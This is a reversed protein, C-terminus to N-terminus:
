SEVGACMRCLIAAFRGAGFGNDINVVVVGSACSNLMGLLAALGDFAAGYGVSTPVAIVPVDVLGGVVSPLAGEMGAVVIIVGARMLTESYALLRHLGSVGVDYVRKVACGALEATLAAEEAVPQDSTGATVVAVPRRTLDPEPLEGLRIIRALEHYEADPIEACVYAAMEPTARTAIVLPARQSLAQLIAVVQEPQKGEALVTEPFGRRLARHHDVKAFGLEEFPLCRLRQVADDPSVEGSRVQSMLQALEDRNM